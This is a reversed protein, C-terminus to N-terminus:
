KRAVIMPRNNNKPICDDDSMGVSTVSAFGAKRLLGLAEELDTGSNGEFFLWEGTIRGLLDYLHAPNKVHRNIALCFVVDVKRGLSEPELADVDGQRFEVNNLGNYRAIGRAIEVKEPDFEIGLSTAPGFRQAEFRMAGCHCGLDLMHRGNIMAKEVGFRDMRRASNRQVKDPSVSFHPLTFSGYIREAKTIHRDGVTQFSLSEERLRDSLLEHVGKLAESLPVGLVQQLAEPSDRTYSMFRTSFATPLGKGALDYSDPFAPSQNQPYPEMTEFDTAMVRGNVWFLNGAHFDRHAYGKEFIEWAIRLAQRAADIREAESMTIAARDLRQEDKYRPMAIAKSGRQVIPVLWPRKGFLQQALLEREMALTGEEGMAFRKELGPQGSLLIGRVIARRGIHMVDPVLKFVQKRLKFRWKKLRKKWKSM